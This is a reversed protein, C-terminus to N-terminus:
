ANLWWRWPLRRGLLSELRRMDTGYYEELFVRAESPMSPKTARKLLVTDRIWARLAAPVCRRALGRVTTNSIWFKALPWRRAAYANYAPLTGGLTGADPVGLFQLVGSIFSHADRKLDDFLLVTVADQGFTELYRAVQESYEGLELYFRSIGWGKQAQHADAQLAELFPMGQWGLRVEALYHSYAREVPDRLVIIIKADPIKERILRPFQRDWLYSPSAGGIAIEGTTGAFLRLYGDWDVVRQHTGPNKVADPSFFLPEKVPCM